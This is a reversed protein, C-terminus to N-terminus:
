AIEVTFSEEFVEGPQLTNGWTRDAWDGDYGVSDCRGYWPEICVFPANKGPCSWVGFLPATFSVTLYHKGQPDVLAVQHCQDHEIILADDDFLHSDIPLYGDKTTITKIPTGVCGGETIVASTMPEKTDFYLSYDSQAAGEVDPCVFAPHGGISFHLVEGAPNTVRWINEVRNEGLRYGIDLIFEYPYKALTTENSTLRMWCEEETASLIAFEMDRAFGHQGMTYTRGKARFEKNWVSGVLPFLVPAHRKWYAADGCWLYEKGQANQLSIMEAGNQDITVRITQNQLIIQAM